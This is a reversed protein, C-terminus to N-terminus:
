ALADRLDLFTIPTLPSPALLGPADLMPGFRTHALALEGSQVTATREEVWRSLQRRDVVAICRRALWWEVVDRKVKVDLVAPRAATDVVSIQLRPPRWEREHPRAEGSMSM